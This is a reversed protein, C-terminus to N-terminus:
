LIDNHSSQCKRRHTLGGGSKMEDLSRAHLVFDQREIKVRTVIEFRGRRDTEDLSGLSSERTIWFKGQNSKEPFNEPLPERSSSPFSPWSESSLIPIPTSGISYRCPDSSGSRSEPEETAM